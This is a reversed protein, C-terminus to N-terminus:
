PPKTQLVAGGTELLRTKTSDEIGPAQVNSETNHGRCAAVACTPILHIYWKISRATAFM